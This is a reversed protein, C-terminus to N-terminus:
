HVSLSSASFLMLTNMLQIGRIWLKAACCVKGIISKIIQDHSNENRNKKLKKEKNAKEQKFSEDNTSSFSTKRAGCSLLDKITSYKGLKSM